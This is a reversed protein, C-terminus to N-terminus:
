SCSEFAVTGFDPDQESGAELTSKLKEFSLDSAVNANASYLNCIDLGYDTPGYAAIQIASNKVGTAHPLKHTLLHCGSLHELVVPETTDFQTESRQILRRDILASIAHALNVTAAGNDVEFEHKVQEEPLLIVLPKSDVYVASDCFLSLLTFDDSELMGIEWLAKLSISKPDGAINVLARALLDTRWPENRRRAISEFQDWWLNQESSAPEPSDEDLSDLSTPLMELAKCITAVLRMDGQLQEFSINVLAKAVPSNTKQQGTMKLLKKYHDTVGNCVSAFADEHMKLQTLRLRGGVIWNRLKPPGYAVLIRGFGSMQNNLTGSIAGFAVGSSKVLGDVVAKEDIEM